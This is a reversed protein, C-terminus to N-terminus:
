DFDGECYYEALDCITFFPYRRISKNDPLAEWFKQFFRTVLVVDESTAVDALTTKTAAEARKLPGDYGRIYEQAAPTNLMERAKLLMGNSRNSM